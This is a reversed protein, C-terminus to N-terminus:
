HLSQTLSGEFEMTFAGPAVVATKLRAEVDSIPLVYRTGSECDALSKLFTLMEQNRESPRYEFVLRALGQETAFQALGSVMAYEVQKGLVACSVAMSSIVLADKESRFAVLGTVGYDAMRDSVQVLLCQGSALLADITAESLDRKEGTLTFSAANRLIRDVHTRDGPLAPALSVKVRLGTLYASLQAPGDGAPPLTNQTGRTWTSALRQGLFTGLKDFAEQTFPIQGLRDAGRDEFGDQFLSTPWLITTVQPLSRIRALLLNTYSQCLTELKHRVAVWGTSPCALFWVPKGRHSLAAIQRVFEDTRVRLGERLEQQSPGLTSAPESKLVDRLWDEVRILVLTGAIQALDPALMYHSM